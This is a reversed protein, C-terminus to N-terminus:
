PFNGGKLHDNSLKPSSLEVNLPEIKQVETNQLKKKLHDKCGLACVGFCGAL